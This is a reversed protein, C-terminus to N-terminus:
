GSDLNKMPYEWVRQRIIQDMSFDFVFENSNFNLSLCRAGRNGESIIINQSNTPDPVLDMLFELGSVHKFIFEDESPKLSLLGVM